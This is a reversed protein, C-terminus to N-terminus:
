GKLGSPLLSIHFKYCSLLLTAGFLAIFWANHRIYSCCYLIIVTKSLPVMYINLRMKTQILM